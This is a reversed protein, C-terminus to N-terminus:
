REAAESKKNTQQFYNDIIGCRNWWSELGTFTLFASEHIPSREHDHM